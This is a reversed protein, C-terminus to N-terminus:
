ALKEIQDLNFVSFGKLGKKEELKGNKKNKKQYKVVRKLCVGKEKNKVKYGNDRAQVFTMWENSSFGLKDAMIQLVDQNRGTYEVQTIYNKHAM